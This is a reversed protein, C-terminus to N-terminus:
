NVGIRKQTVLERKLIIEEVIGNLLTRDLLFKCAESDKTADKNVLKCIFEGADSYRKHDFLICRTCKREMWKNDDPLEIEIKM